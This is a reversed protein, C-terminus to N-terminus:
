FVFPIVIKRSRPYDEFKNLYWQHHMHARSGLVLLTSVAFATSELTNCALAFGCWELIEGFYNAGSVYEFMGGRPIKYGTEGPKRLNRLINDSHMNILLGGLWGAIGLIFYPETLRNPSYEAYNSLSRGQLYGNYLCFSFALVFTIFPTPKGGRILFPFIFSRYFYHVLFLGLLIRNPWFRLRDGDSGLVLQLPFLFAPMEQVMWALTAPVSRGYSASYYRGYPAGARHLVFVVALSIFVVLGYSMQKLLREEQPGSVRQWFARPCLLSGALAAAAAEMM